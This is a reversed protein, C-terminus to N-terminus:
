FAPALSRRSRRFSLGIAGFGLLMALWTAPEPAAAAGLPVSFANLDNMGINPTTDLANQEANFWYGLETGTTNPLVTFRQNLDFDLASMGHAFEFNVRGADASIVVTVLGSLFHTPDDALTPDLFTVVFLDSSLQTDTLPFPPFLISGATVEDYPGDGDSTPVYLPAIVPVGFTTFDASPNVGLIPAGFSIIGSDYIFAQDTPTGGLNLTFPMQTSTCSADNIQCPSIAGVSPVFNGQDIVILRAQAPISISLLTAASAYM